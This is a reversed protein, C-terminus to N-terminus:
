QAPRAKLLKKNKVTLMLIRGGNKESIEIGLEKQIALTFAPFAFVRVSNGGGLVPNEPERWLPKLETEQMATRKASHKDQIFFKIYDEQFAVQSYNSLEITFWLMQGRIYIGKLWAKMKQSHTQVHMFHPRGLIILADSDLRAENAPDNASSTSVNDTAFSLNLTDPSDKYNLIFSYFRGDTTYVSLNTALFNKRNAKLFLINGLNNDKEGIVDGSGIDAKKIGYPFIINTTMRYTVSLPYSPIAVQAYGTQFLLFMFIASLTKM